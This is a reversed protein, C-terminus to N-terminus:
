KGDPTPPMSEYSASPTTLVPVATKAVTPYLGKHIAKAVAQITNVGDNMTKNDHTLVSLTYDHGKGTFAGISHVRWGHTSRQLWGNKLHVKASTPAGAPVGWRQSPVVKNMRDLMYARSADTLVTNKATVLSLLQKEDDATIQTLGWYGGTGPVTRTMKAAKLFGKVRTLGLQKWLTSTSANDSKTIMATVLNKESTTLARGTKQADWLLTALVTVKVVSASDYQQTARLTCRTNTTRDHLSLATTSKRGKLAATIDKSLKAALGAKGSTCAVSPTAAAAPAATAALPVLVAGVLAASLVGRARRPIRQDTM